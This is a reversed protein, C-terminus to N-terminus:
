LHVCCSSCFIPCHSCRDFVYLAFYHLLPLWATIRFEFIHIPIDLSIFVYVLSILLVFSGVDISAPVTMQQGSSMYSYSACFLSILSTLFCLLSFSAYLVLVSHRWKPWVLCRFPCMFHHAWPLFQLKSHKFPFITIQSTATTVIRVQCDKYLSVPQFTCRCHPYVPRCCLSKPPTLVTQTRPRVSSM